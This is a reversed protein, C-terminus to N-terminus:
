DPSSPAGVHALFQERWAASPWLKFIASFAKPAGNEFGTVVTEHGYTRRCIAPTNALERAAEGLAELAKKRRTRAHEGPAGRGLNELATASACLTQFDSRSVRCGPIPSGCGTRRM